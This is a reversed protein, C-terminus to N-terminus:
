NEKGLSCEGVLGFDAFDAVAADGYLQTYRCPGGLAAVPSHAGRCRHTQVSCNLQLESSHFAILDGEGNEM